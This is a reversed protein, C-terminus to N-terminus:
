VVQGRERAEDDAAWVAQVERGICEWDGFDQLMTEFHRRFARALYLTTKDFTVMNKPMVYRAVEEHELREAARRAWAAFGWADLPSVTAARVKEAAKGPRV